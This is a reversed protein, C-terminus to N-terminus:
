EAPPIFCVRLSPEGPRATWAAEPGLGAVALLTDKATLVPLNERLARPIREDICWKKLTKTNRGPLRLTDGMQRPRLTLPFPPPRLHCVSGSQAQEAPCVAEELTVRWGTTLTRHGPGELTVSSFGSAPSAPPAPVFLLTDYERRATLGEPLSLAAAPDPSAALLLIGELHVAASQWRGLRGLVQRVARIAVPRPAAALAAASLALGGEMPVATRSLAEAQGYLYDRDARLHPLNASLTQVFAPNLERLVPLVERRVRNRAYAPDANSSDEVHPVNKEELYDEIEARTCTLLPRILNGRTPPIGTLGDLGTGRVLHLLVTEANDEANHATAIRHAGVARATEELFAYRMRRATEEIGRGTRAAEGAVDGSGVTLSVGADRCWASVFEEDRRSEEGRLRHNYHAACVTLDRTQALALLATLLAMSDAGGSLACLVRAGAPLMGTEEAFALVKAPLETTRTM